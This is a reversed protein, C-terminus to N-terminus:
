HKSIRKGRIKFGLKPLGYVTFLFLGIIFIGGLVIQIPELNNM